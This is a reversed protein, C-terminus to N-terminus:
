VKFIDLRHRTQRVHSFEIDTVGYDSPGYENPEFLRNPLHLVQYKRGSGRISRVAKLGTWM